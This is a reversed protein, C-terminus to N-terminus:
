ILITEAEQTKKSIVRNLNEVIQEKYKNCLLSSGNNLCDKLVTEPTKKIKHNKLQTIKKYHPLGYIKTNEREIQRNNPLYINLTDIVQQLYKCSSIDEPIPYGHSSLLIKCVEKKAKQSYFKKFFPLKIVTRIIKDDVTQEAYKRIDRASARQITSPRYEAVSIKRNM